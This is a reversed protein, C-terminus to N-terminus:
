EGRSPSLVFVSFAGDSEAHEINYKSFQECLMEHTSFVLPHNFFQVNDLMCKTSAKWFTDPTCIDELVIIRKSRKAIMDLLSAHRHEPIHHLVTSVLTIDFNGIDEPIDNGDYVVVPVKGISEDQIDLPTVDHGDRVLIDSITNLGCGFNLIKQKGAPIHKGIKSLVWQDHRDVLPRIANRVFPIRTVGQRM